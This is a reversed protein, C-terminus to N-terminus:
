IGSVVWSPKEVFFLTRTELRYVEATAVIRSLPALGHALDLVYATKSLAESGASAQITGRIQQAFNELAVSKATDNDIPVIVAVLAYKM